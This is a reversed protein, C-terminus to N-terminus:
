IQVIIKIYTYFHDVKDLYKNGGRTCRNYRSACDDSREKVPMFKNLKKAYLYCSKSSPCYTFSNCGAEYDEWRDCRTKCDNEHNVTYVFSGSTTPKGEDVVTSSLGGWCAKNFSICQISLGNYKNM